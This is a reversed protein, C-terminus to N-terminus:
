FNKLFIKEENCILNYSKQIVKIMNNMDIINNINLKSLNLYILFYCKYFMYDM